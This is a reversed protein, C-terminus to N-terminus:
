EEVWNGGGERNVGVQLSKVKVINRREGVIWIGEGMDRAQRGNEKSDRELDKRRGRRVVTMKLSTFVQLGAVIM